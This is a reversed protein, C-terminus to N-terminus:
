INWSRLAKIVSNCFQQHQLPGEPPWRELGKSLCPWRWSTAWCWTWELAMEMWNISAKETTGFKVLSSFVNLYRLSGLAVVAGTSWYYPIHPLSVDADGTFLMTTGLWNWSLSSSCLLHLGGFVQLFHKDGLIFHWILHSYIIKCLQKIAWESLFLYSPSSKDKRYFNNACKYVSSSRENYLWICAKTDYEQPSMSM